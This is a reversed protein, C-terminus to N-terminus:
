VARSATPRDARRTYWLWIVALAVSAGAIDIFVDKISPTRNAVFRQHFEDTAAYLVVIGLAAAAPAWSWPRSDNRKPKRLARWLLWALLGFETMHALKRVFLHVWDLAQASIEPILWRLFPDIFRSTHQISQADASASFIVALWVLLPFWYRLFSVMSRSMLAANGAPGCRYDKHNSFPRGDPLYVGSM